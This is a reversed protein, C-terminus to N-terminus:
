LILMQEKKLTSALAIRIINFRSLLAVSIGTADSFIQLNEFAVRGMNGDAMRKKVLQLGLQDDLKKKIREHALQIRAQKVPGYAPFERVRAKIRAGVKCFHNFTNITFHLISLCLECFAEEDSPTFDIEDDDLNIEDPAAGCFPCRSQWDNDM